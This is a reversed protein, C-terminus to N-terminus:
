RHEYFRFFHRYLQKVCGDRMERTINAQWSYDVPGANPKGAGLQNQFQMTFPRGPQQAGMPIGSLNNLNNM